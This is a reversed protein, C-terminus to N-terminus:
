EKGASVDDLWTASAYAIQAQWANLQGGAALAARVVGAHTIILCTGGRRAAESLGAGVREALQAVSEGGHPRGEFFHEAWANIEGEPIESWLRGEWRGFDMEQFRPDIRPVLGRREGLWDALRRCRAAPSTILHDFQPLTSELAGAEERFSSAIPIDLRGYCLGDADRLRTHRVLILAM